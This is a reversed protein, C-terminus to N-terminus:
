GQFHPPSTQRAGCVRSLSFEVTLSLYLAPLPPHPPFSGDDAALVMQIDFATEM